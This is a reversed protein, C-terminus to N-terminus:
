VSAPVKAKMVRVGPIRGVEKRTREDQVIITTVASSYEGGVASSYHIERTAPDAGEESLTVDRKPRCSDVVLQALEQSGCMHITVGALVATGTLVEYKSTSYKMKSKTKM